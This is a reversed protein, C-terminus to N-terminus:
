GNDEGACELSVPLVLGERRQALYSRIGERVRRYGSRSWQRQIFRIEVSGVISQGPIKQHWLDTEIVSSTTFAVFFSFLHIEKELVSVQLAITSNGPAETTQYTYHRFLAVADDSDPLQTICALMQEVERARADPLRNLFNQKLLDQLNVSSNQNPEFGGSYDASGTWKSSLLAKRYESFWSGPLDFRSSKDDASLQSFLLSDFIDENDVVSGRGGGLLVNGAVVVAEIENNM